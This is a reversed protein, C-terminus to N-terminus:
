ETNEGNGRRVGRRWVGDYIVGTENGEGQVGDVRTRHRNKREKKTRKAGAGKEKEKGNTPSWKAQICPTM